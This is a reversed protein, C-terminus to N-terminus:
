IINREPKKDATRRKSNKGRQYVRQIVTGLVTQLEEDFFSVFTIQFTQKERM